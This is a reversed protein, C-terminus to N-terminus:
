SKGQSKKKLAMLAVRWDAKAYTAQAYQKIKAVLYRQPAAESGDILVESRIYAELAELKTKEEDVKARLATLAAEWDKQAYAVQSAEQVIKKMKIILFKQPIEESDQLSLISQIYAELAGLKTKEEGVKARLATLADEWDASAYAAQAYQKIKAILYRQPAAESGDILVESRIYAELAELKTKEEDVKARLATLAAEWDEQAYAVQSAEQVIKKMKIILFKQPIEESDQLSLISQKYAELAELKSKEAEIKQKLTTLAEQWDEYAYAVKAAEKAYKKMNIILYKEPVEKSDKMSMISHIYEDLEKFKKHIPALLLYEDHFSRDGEDYVHRVLNQLRVIASQRAANETDEPIKCIDEILNALGDHIDPRDWLDYAATINNRQQKTLLIGFIKQLDNDIIAVCSRRFTAAPNNNEEINWTSLIARQEQISRTKLIRRLTQDPVKNAAPAISFDGTCITVHTHARNLAELLKHISGGSCIDMAVSRERYIRDGDIFKEILSAKKIEILYSPAKTVSPDITKRIEPPFVELNDDVIAWWILAYIKKHTFNTHSHVYNANKNLLSLFDLASKKKDAFNLKTDIVLKDYDFSEVLKTIGELAGEEDLGQGYFDNLSDLSGKATHTVSPDHTNQRQQDFQQATAATTRRAVPVVVPRRLLDVPPRPLQDVPRTPPLRRAQVSAPLERYLQGGADRIMQILPEPADRKLAVDLITQKALHRNVDLAVTGDACRADLLM